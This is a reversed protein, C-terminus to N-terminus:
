FIMREEFNLILFDKLANYFLSSGKIFFIKNQRSSLKSKEQFM